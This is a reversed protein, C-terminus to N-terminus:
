NMIWQRLLEKLEPQRITLWAFMAVLVWPCKRIADGTVRQAWTKWPLPDRATQRNIAMEEVIDSVTERITAAIVLRIEETFGNALFEHMPELADLIDNRKRLVTYCKPDPLKGEDLLANTESKIVDRKARFRDLMEGRQM